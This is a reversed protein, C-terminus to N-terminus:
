HRGRGIYEETPWFFSAIHDYVNDPLVVSQLNGAKSLSMPRRRLLHLQCIDRVAAAEHTRKLFDDFNTWKLDKDYTKEILRKRYHAMSADSECALSDSDEEDEDLSSTRSTEWAKTLDDLRPALPAQLHREEVKMFPVTIYVPLKEDPKATNSDTLKSSPSTSNGPAFLERGFFLALRIERSM